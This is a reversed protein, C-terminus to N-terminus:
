NTKIYSLINDIKTSLLFFTGGGPISGLRETLLVSASVLISHLSNTDIELSSHSNLDMNFNIKM